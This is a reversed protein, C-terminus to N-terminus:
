QAVEENVARDTVKALGDALVDTRLEVVPQPSHVPWLRVLFGAELAGPALLRDDLRVATAQGTALEYTMALGDSTSLDATM